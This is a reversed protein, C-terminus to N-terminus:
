ACSYAPGAKWASAACTSWTSRSTISCFGAAGGNRPPLRFWIEWKIKSKRPLDSDLQVASSDDFITEYIAGAFRFLYSGEGTYKLMELQDGPQIRLTEAEHTDPHAAAIELARSAVRIETKRCRYLHEDPPYRFAAKDYVYLKRANAKPSARVIAGARVEIVPALEGPWGSNEFLTTERDARVNSAFFLLSAVLTQVRLTTTM